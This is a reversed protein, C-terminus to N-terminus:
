EEEQQETYSDHRSPLPQGEWVNHAEVYKMEGPKVRSHHEKEKELKACGYCISSKVSFDIENNTSHGLWAPTGCGSCTESELITLAVALM